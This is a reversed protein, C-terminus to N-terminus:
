ATDCCVLHSKVKYAAFEVLFIEVFTALTEVSLALALDDGFVPFDDLLHREELEESKQPRISRIKAPIM